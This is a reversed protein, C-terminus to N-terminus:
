QLHNLMTAACEVLHSGRTPSKIPSKGPVDHHEASALSPLLPLVAKIKVTLQEHLSAYRELLMACDRCLFGVGLKYVDLDRQQEFM